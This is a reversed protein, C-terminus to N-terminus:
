EFSGKSNGCLGDKIDHSDNGDGIEGESGDGIEEVAMEESGANINILYRTSKKLDVGYRIIKHSNELNVCRM